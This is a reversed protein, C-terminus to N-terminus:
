QMGPQRPACSEIVTELAMAAQPFPPEACGHSGTPFVRISAQAWAATSPYWEAGFRGGALPCYGSLADLKGFSTGEPVALALLREVGSGPPTWHLPIVVPSTADALDSEGDLPWMLYPAGRDDVNILRIRVRGDPTIRIEDAADQCVTGAASNTTELRLSVATTTPTFGPLGAAADSVSSGFPLGDLGYLMLPVEPGAVTSTGQPLEVVAAVRLVDDRRTIELHVRAGPTQGARVEEVEAGRLHGRLDLSLDAGVETPVNATGWGAPGLDVRVTGVIDHIGKALDDMGTRLAESAAERPFLKATPVLLVACAVGKRPSFVGGNAEFGDQGWEILSARLQGRQKETLAAGWGDVARSVADDKAKTRAREGDGYGLGTVVRYVAQDVRKTGCIGAVTPDSISDWRAALAMSTWLLIM